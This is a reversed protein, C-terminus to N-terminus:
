LEDVFALDRQVVYREYCKECMWRGGPDIYGFEGAEIHTKCLDCHEHGWGGPVPRRESSPPLSQDSAPYHQSAGERGGVLELKTWVRVERGGVVSTEGADYDEAVADAGQFQERGWGWLPDLVMWVHYAQWRPSLYALAEGVVRPEDKVDCTLVAVQSKKDMSQLTACLCDNEGFLLWFWDPDIDDIIRDFKGDLEFRTYGANSTKRRRVASVIFHPFDQLTKRKDQTM